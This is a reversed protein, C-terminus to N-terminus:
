RMKPLDLQSQTSVRLSWNPVVITKDAASIACARDFVPPSNTAHRRCYHAVTAPCARNGIRM